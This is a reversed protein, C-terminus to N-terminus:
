APVLLHARRLELCTQGFCAELEELHLEMGVKQEVRKVGHRLEDMFIGVGGIPHDGAQAVEQALRQRSAAHLLHRKMALELQEVAIELYLLRPEPIAKLNLKIDVRGDPLREDRVQDQLRDDFVGDHVPDAGTYVGAMDSYVSAGHVARQEQLDLVIPSPHPLSFETFANAKPVRAFAQASQIAGLM